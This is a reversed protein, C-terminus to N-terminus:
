RISSPSFVFPGSSVKADSVLSNFSCVVEFRHLLYLFTERRIIHNQAKSRMFVILCVVNNYQSFLRTCTVYMGTVLHSLEMPKTLKGAPM